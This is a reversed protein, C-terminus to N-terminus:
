CIDELHLDRQWTNVIVFVLFHGTWSVQIGFFPYALNGTSKENSKQAM